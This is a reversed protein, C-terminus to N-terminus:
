AWLKWKGVYQLKCDNKCTMFYGLQALQVRLDVLPSLSRPISDGKHPLSLQMKPLGDQM